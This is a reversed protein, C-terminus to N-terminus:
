WIQCFDFYKMTFMMGYNIEIMKSVLAAM